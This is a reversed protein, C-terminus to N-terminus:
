IIFGLEDLVRRGLTLDGEVDVGDSARTRGGCLRMFLSSPMRLTVTPPGAPEAVLAARGNVAVTLRRPMSGTLDFVVVSGDPAAARKGIIRGLANAAENYAVEAAPGDEGGSIGVADRIDQEHFWCDFIRIQMFRGYTTQGLPTSSPADFEEQSMRELVNGRQRVIKRFRELMASPPEDRLTQVWQENIAGLDNHVHPLGKVDVDVAPASEGNLMEEAGILHSVVDTVRWGPLCTPLAWQDPTLGTLLRDLTVWEGILTAIVPDKAIDDTGDSM